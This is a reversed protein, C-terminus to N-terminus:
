HAPLSASGCTGTSTRSGDVAVTQHDGGAVINRDIWAQLPAPVAEGEQRLHLYLKRLGDHAWQDRRARHSWAALLVDRVRCGPFEPSMADPATLAWDLILLDSKALFTEGRTIARLWDLDAGTDGM